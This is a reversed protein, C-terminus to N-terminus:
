SRKVAITCGEGIPLITSELDYQPLARNFEDIGKKSENSAGLVRM